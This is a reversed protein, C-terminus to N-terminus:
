CEIEVGARILKGLCDHREPSCPPQGSVGIRVLDPVYTLIEEEAHYGEIAPVRGIGLEKLVRLQGPDFGNSSGAFLEGQSNEGIAIVRMKAAQPYRAGLRVQDALSKLSQAGGGEEPVCAPAGGSSGGGTGSGQGTGSTSPTPSDGPSAPNSTQSPNPNQGPGPKPGNSPPAPPRIPRPPPTPHVCTTSCQGPGPHKKPKNKEAQQRDYEHKLKQYENEARNAAQEAQVAEQTFRNATAVAQNYAAQAISLAQDARSAANAADQYAKWLSRAKSEAKQFAAFDNQAQSLESEYNNLELSITQVAAYDLIAKWNLNDTIQSPPGGTECVHPGSAPYVCNDTQVEGSDTALKQEWYQLSASLSNVKAQLAAISTFGDTYLDGAVISYAQEAQQQAETYAQHAQGAKTNMQRAYAAAANLAALDRAQTTRAQAAQKQLSAAKHEADAARAKAQDVQAQTINSSGSSDQDPSHGTLDTVTVPNDDAYAYPNGAPATDHNLFNGHAPSYFRSGMNVQGTLPDTWQGQYGIHVAPGTAAIVQGWPDYTASSALATGAPTFTGALDDHQNTFALTRGGGTSNIGTLTGSPDRSYTATGDSTLQGTAGSYTLAISANGTTAGTVRNLADWTYSSGADTIQQGYADSTYSTVAGGPATQAALDGSATYSYTNGKSDSTLEDRADYSYSSAGNSVLNGDSDYGYSTTTATGSAPTATWSTLRSALDYSYSNTVTGTGGGTTALGSTTMSTIDNSTDYGYSIAAVQAGAATSLTDSALRHMPDYTYSRTDNGTGYSISTVQSLNNYSYTGTTGSAADTDTALLGAKGYTYTSTGAPETATTLQGSANYGFSSTGASGAAALLLGRDDYSFTDSTAPQYGPSGQAGAAATAATLMRGATDYTYSRAATAATAGSGSETLVRGMPDYSSTVQVGGPLTQQVLNGGADYVNTTTSDAASTYRATAPETIVQPLGRSNYTTWTTNGNGDTQQTPNGNLDYGFGYQINKTATVPQTLTTLEGTPDYTATTTTGRFDTSSTMNGDPDYGAAASRLATGAANLQALGTMRGAQDYTATAGSGDPLTVKDVQGNLNYAFSTTNGGGDTSSTMEGLPNYAARTTVGAPTTVSTQNGADDYGYTTTYAASTNQRVLQTTTIKRGRSDYTAQTQAGTPDTVSTQEGAPDYTYTWTGGDADTQSALDGLQDYKMQTKGGLPDTVSSEQGLNDYTYTTTGNVPGTAGPPIYSPATVSTQQGGQGYAATTINGDADASETVDGFTDYGTTYVPHATVAAGGTGNQSQVAPLTQVVPRGAEDNQYSTINGAPDTVSTVLGRQDRQYSTTLNTSGDAVTSSTLQDMANYTGTATETTGGGAISSATINGDPDYTTSSTLDAGAPDATGSVVQNAANVVDTIVLGGPKTEGTINGEPDYSYSTVDVQGTSSGPDPIYSSALKNNGYYTYSTQTGNVHTVSALRGAPDYARSEEVLDVPPQPASPNGTYGDLTTTLLHGLDDYRFALTRGAPDTESARNGFADYTFTTTNGLPDKSTSLDGHPDYTDTTIRSPDGGTADSIAHTLLLGDPDYTGTIMETHVAGTVRDTVVPYTTTLTNGLSDYTYSTTLGAPFTDSVQTATLERGLNDYTYRTVLGLPDTATMLDGAADYAYTATGGGPTTVSTLLAAPETGGGAAGETGTTYTRTTVCGSPCAATPPTRTAAILGSATYTTVTDYAPDSPSQSRPDRDDTPKDNRPDLANSPNEYYSTYATQCDNVAACTTASTVNNHADHTTYTTDGDPDTITSARNAADYGYWTIGGLAGTTRALNGSAYMYQANKGAPDTVTIAQTNITPLAVPTSQGPGTQQSLSEADNLAQYQSSVEATTLDSTYLSVDAISGTFDGTTGDFTTASGNGVYAVYGSPSATATASNSTSAQAGDVYLTAAQITTSTDAPDPRPGSLTLVVQHWKSNNVGCPGQVRAANVQADVCGTSGIWILPAEGGTSGSASFLTVDKSGTQFWLSVSEAGAAAFYNGPISVQSGSGSFSAATGDAFGTPGPVGLTVNAYTAPPRPNASTASSGIIDHAMPGATDNLPWFDEPGSGLVSDGYAASTSSSVPLGYAWTGGHADTLTQVRDNIRDYRASMETRGGRSTVSTLEAAPTTEAAYQAAVTGVSPLQNQYISLDAMSGNFFVFQKAATEGAGLLVAASAPLAKSSGTFTAAQKGDLYLAQGPILVAQHWAGDDVPASSSMWTCSAPLTTCSGYGQLDGNSAIQLLNVPGNGYLSNSAGPVQATLGLLVGSATTTKFWVSIALSSVSGGLVRGTDGSAFCSSVQGPTTCWVGDLSIFSSTGNFGTATVGPVPGSVGPATNFEYAPPDLTTLDNVPIQNAAATASAPDDLRYYATPDANLVSTPAHSGSTIYSYRTCVTTTGPPCVSALLDGSYGYTWTLATSPQGATVPDTSVAAVHPYTAGSPTSWTLHLARGSATSTIASVAGSSYTFRESRGSADTIQSILWDTGSAQGFSYTTATQDTVTFGGGSLAAVVAYMDQPPAYGGAADKAFRVQKGDALTLILAGSGDPDPDLSMDLASSWDAGLAQSTRPDLSNYTRVISLPPGVTAVSADTVRESVNATRPDVMKGSGSYGAGGLDSTMVPNGDDAQYTNGFRHAVKPQANGVVFTIPTTWAGTSLSPPGSNTSGDTVLVSWYYTDGWTLAKSPTWSDGNDAVWGSSQVETATKLDPGSVIAFAFSFQPDAPYGGAVTAGATLQPTQTDVDTGPLPEQENVTAPYQQITYPACYESGGEASFYEGSANVMDWCITYSGPNEPPTVSEVTVRALPAVSSSIAVNTGTSLPTGSGTTDSAPFVQTGLAYATSWTSTGNNALTVAIRGSQDALPVTDFASAV